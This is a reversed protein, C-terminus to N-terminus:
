VEVSAFRVVRDGFLQGGPDRGIAEDEHWSAGEGVRIVSPNAVDGHRHKDARQKGFVDLLRVTQLRRELCPTAM